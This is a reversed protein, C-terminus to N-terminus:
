DINLTFQFLYMALLVYSISISLFTYSTGNKTGKGTTLSVKANIDVRM